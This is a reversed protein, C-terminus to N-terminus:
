CIVAKIVIVPLLLTVTAFNIQISGCVTKQSAAFTRYFLSIEHLSFLLCPM